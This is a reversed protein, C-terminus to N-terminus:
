MKWVNMVKPREISKVAAQVTAVTLRVTVDVDILDIVRLKMDGGFQLVAACDLCVTYDNPKATPEVEIKANKRTIATTADLKHFCAPCWQPDLRRSM